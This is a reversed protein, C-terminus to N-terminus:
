ERGWAAHGVHGRRNGAGGAVVPEPHGTATYACVMNSRIHLLIYVYAHMHKHIYTCTYTHISTHIYVCVYVYICMCVCVCISTHIYPYGREGEIQRDEERM